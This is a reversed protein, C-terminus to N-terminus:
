ENSKQLEIRGISEKIDIIAQNQYGSIEIDSGEISGDPYFFIYLSGIGMEIGEPINIKRGLLGSVPIFGSSAEEKAEIKIAMNNLDFNLRYNGQEVSAREQLYRMRSVLNQCFNDFKLNNFTGRFRPLSIAVLSGIIAIVVLLEILSFGTLSILKNKKFNELPTKNFRTIKTGISSTM